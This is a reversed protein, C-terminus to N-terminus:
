TKIFFRCFHSHKSTPTRRDASQQVSWLSRLALNRSRTVGFCFPPSSLFLYATALSFSAVTLSFYLSATNSVTEACHSLSCSPILFHLMKCSLRVDAVSLTRPHSFRHCSSQNLSLIQTRSCIIWLFMSNALHSFDWECLSLCRYTVWLLATTWCILCELFLQSCCFAHSISLAIFPPTSVHFPRRSKCLPLTPSWGTLVLAILSLLPIKQTHPLSRTHSAPLLM